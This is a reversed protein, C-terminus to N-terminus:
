FPAVSGHENQLNQNLFNLAVDKKLKNGLFIVAETITIVDYDTAYSSYSEDM